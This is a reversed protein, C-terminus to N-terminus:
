FTVNLNFGLSRTTPLNYWLMGQAFNSTSYSSEPDFNEIDKYIFFLNRGVLGISVRKFFSDGLVSRPLSYVLTLERLRINTQSYIYNSSIDAMAGWYDQGTIQLTNSEYVPEEPTGTNVMGDVTIGDRYELSRTSVGSNDLQADTGSYVEGGIRFDILAGITLGKYSWKNFLGGSWDPQYNGLLVMEDSAQPRGTADVVIDGNPTTKEEYGWIEGYGGGVTAQVYVDGANTSSFTFTELDDILEVLENTNKAMNLSVDWTFSGSKVPYGGILMEFGSNTLEGVNTHFQSYGTAAPVPIKMILDTSNIKYISLDAYLRNNFMSLEIGGELSSSQEPRIPEYFISPRTLITLGLYSGSSGRLDFSNDLLYPNTDNGVQAWSFRVKSFNLVTSNLGIIENVLLSLSASPYFYSWEDEPLTSSWDNRGTLDLYIMHKFALSASGYLSQVQKQKPSLFTPTNIINAGSVIPKTPIKFDEGSINTHEHERYMLNGGANITLRLDGFDKDFMLIFDANTEATTETKFNFRGTPYFWHGYQSISEINQTLRDTGVRVFAKLYDTFEYNVKAFGLFRNRRDSNVDHQLIWYPNGTSGRQYTKVSYDDNQYDELDVLDINRPMDYVYAMIGETGQSPRQNADQKFYTARADISLKDSLKAVTRINFNHRQLDSYPLISNTNTNTYSLRASVDEGGYDLALTNVFNSGTRFFDKVNDPQASYPRLDNEATFYYQSSGDMMPGWSGGTNTSFENYDAPINGDKGQGYDNQYEPLLMPTEFTLNSSLSVGLGQTGSGQKTTILIVGNAARSGYLAAANPGKLVSISEVDDPNIDSIGTGFDNRKYNATGDGAASGYGNNNVPIGDVVYLPQNNGTLSNNGRIVVRSGSGPGATSQTIVVGAVRGSLQNILNSEKVQNLDAGSVETVAYGLAKKEKTLGLATVVVEDLAEASATLVINLTTRGNINTEESQFGIFSFVLVADPGPADITYQGDVDTVTGTSTGRVVISAGPLGTEDEASTIKGTVTHQAYLGGAFLFLFFLFLTQKM